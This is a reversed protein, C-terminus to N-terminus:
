EEDEEEDSLFKELRDEPIGGLNYHDLLVEGLSAGNFLEDLIGELGYDDVYDNIVDIFNKEFAKM